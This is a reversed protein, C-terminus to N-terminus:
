RRDRDYGGPPSSPLIRPPLLPLFEIEGHAMQRHLKCRHHPSMTAPSSTRSAQLALPRHQVRRHLNHLTKSDAPLDNTSIKPLTKLFEFAM